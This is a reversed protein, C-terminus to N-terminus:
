LAVEEGKLVEMFVKELNREAKGFSVVPIDQNVLVKLLKWLDEEGGGYSIELEQGDLIIENVLPQEKLINVAKELRDIVKIKVVTSGSVRDMIENISGQVVMRGNEIIGITDCLESLEPLIHSSILITKGMRKLEKLIEKMEIRAMPDMGSAPEDLILLEPNHMLSRALCLRQKMGRSLEDVYCDRKNSLDVLELLELAAQRRESYTLGYASGYFDLYEMVKLNDYVGFFDPMYGLKSRVKMPERSVDVGDVTVKGSTLPLLAAAIKMTTTKGAGNPGVFGFISGRELELNLHDVALFSGYRKVLDQIVLMM